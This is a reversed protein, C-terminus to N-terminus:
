VCNPNDVKNGTAIDYLEALNMDDLTSNAVAIEAHTPCLRVVAQLYLEPRKERVKVIAEVGHENWDAVMDRYVAETLADRSGKPRGKPNGSQGKQWTM